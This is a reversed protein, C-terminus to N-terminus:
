PLEVSVGHRFVNRPDYKAKIQQLRPYNEKHLLKQVSMGSTNWPAGVLDLDPWNVHLGDTQGNPVPVGGTSAFLSQYFERVWRMHKDDDAPVDWASSVSGMMLTSRHPTASGAAPIANIQGGYSTLSFSAAPNTYDTRTLNYFAKAVQEDTFRAKLHAVKSKWRPPGTVGAAVSSDPVNITSSLWPLNGSKVVTPTAPVSQRMYALYADLLAENGSVTPDVQGVVVVIGKEKRPASFAGHLQNGRSGVASNQEIWTGWNRVLTTFAGETLDAWNFVLRGSMLANPAKPLLASPNTSVANPSRMWFKTVVGFNGGGAGTHAWWLDNYPNNSDRTAVVAKAKGDADVVVVEIAYLHDAILGHQRSLAGFGNGTIHGGAGVVPCVGGPLTVGWGYDLTRYIEGLTAGPEIAFANRSGDFTVSRMETFDIVVKTDANDVLGDLCHGGGRIAIRKGAAVAENVADVVHQTTGVIKISEPKSVLRKNYGRLLLDQYRSDAPTVTVPGPRVDRTAVEEGTALAPRAVALGVATTGAGLLLRRSIGSM